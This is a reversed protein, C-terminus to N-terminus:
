EYCALGEGEEILLALRPSLLSREYILHYRTCGNDRRVPHLLLVLSLKILYVGAPCM